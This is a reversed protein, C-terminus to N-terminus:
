KTLCNSTIIYISDKCTEPVVYLVQYNYTVKCYIYVKISNGNIIYCDKIKNNKTCTSNGAVVAPSVTLFHVCAAGTGHGALTVRQPDGGFQRINQQVWQLAAIQDMLGSNAVRPRSGPHSNLNLFGPALYVFEGWFM